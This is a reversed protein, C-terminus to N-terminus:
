LSAPLPQKVVALEGADHLLPRFVGAALRLERADLEIPFATAIGEEEWVSSNVPAAATAAV